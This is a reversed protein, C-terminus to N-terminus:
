ASNSWIALCINISGTFPTNKSESSRGKASWSYNIAIYRNISSEDINVILTTSNIIHWFKISFLSRTWKLKDFDVRVPRPKMKKNSFNLEYKMFNRIFYTPYNVKLLNNVHNAVEISTFPTESEEIFINITRRLIKEQKSTLKIFNRRPKINLQMAWAIRMRNIQSDSLWLKNSLEKSTCNSNIITNKAHMLQDGTLKQHKRRNTIGFDNINNEEMSNEERIEGRDNNDLLVLTEIDIDDGEFITKIATLKTQKWTLRKTVQNVDFINNEYQANLPTSRSAISPSDIQKTEM